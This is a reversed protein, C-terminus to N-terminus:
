LVYLGVSLLASRRLPIIDNFRGAAPPFDRLAPNKKHPHAPFSFSPIGNYACSDHCKPYLSFFGVPIGLLFFLIPYLPSVSAPLSHRKIGRPPMEIARRQFPVSSLFTFSIGLSIFYKPYLPSSLSPFVWFFSINQTCLLPFHLFYGFLHFTKPVSLSFHLFYGFLHFIKPVSLTFLYSIGLLLFLLPYSSFFIPVIGLLFIWVCHM